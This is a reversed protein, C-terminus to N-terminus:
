FRICGLFSNWNLNRVFFFFSYNKTLFEFAPYNQSYHFWNPQLEWPTAIGHAAGGIFDYIRKITGLSLLSFLVWLGCSLTKKKNKQPHTHRCKSAKALMEKQLFGFRIRQICKWRNINRELVMEFYDCSIGVFRMPNADIIHIPFGSVSSVRVCKDNCSREM